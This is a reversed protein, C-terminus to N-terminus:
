DYVLKEAVMLVDEFRIIEKYTGDKLKQEGYTEYFPKDSKWTRYKHDSKAVEYLSETDFAEKGFKSEAIEVEKKIEEYGNILEQRNRKDEESLKVTIAGPLNSGYMGNLMIKYNKITNGSLDVCSNIIYRCMDHTPNFGECADGFVTTVNANKIAKFIANHIMRFTTLDKQLIAKYIDRDTNQGFVDSIECGYHELIKRTREIRSKGGSGSGDTIVFVMPRFLEIFKLVRLEHGAHGIILASKM